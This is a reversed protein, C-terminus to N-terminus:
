CVFKPFIEKPEKKQNFRDIFSKGVLFLSFTSSFDCSFAHLHFMDDDDGDNAQRRKNIKEKASFVHSYLKFDAYLIFCLSIMYLPYVYYFFFGDLFDFLDSRIIDEENKKKKSKKHVRKM